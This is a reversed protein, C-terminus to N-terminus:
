EALMALAIVAALSVAEVQSAALGSGLVAGLQGGSLGGPRPPGRPARVESPFKPFPLAAQGPGTRGGASVRKRVWWRGQGQLLWM